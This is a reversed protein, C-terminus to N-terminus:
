CPASPSDLGSWNYVYIKTHCILGNENWTEMVKVRIIQFPDCVPYWVLIHCVCYVQTYQM